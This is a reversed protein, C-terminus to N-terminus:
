PKVRFKVTKTSVQDLEDEVEIFLTVPTEGSIGEPTFHEDMDYELKGHWHKSFSFLEAGDADKTIKIKLNHLSEDTVKGHIHVEGSVLSGETPEELFINPAEDEKKCAAFLTVISLAVLLLQTQIKM